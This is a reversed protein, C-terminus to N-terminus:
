DKKYKPFFVIILCVGMIAIAILYYDIFIYSNINKITEFNLEGDSIHCIINGDKYTTYINNYLQDSYNRINNIVEQSPHGYSNEGYSIVAYKPNTFELFASSTSTNSGHHGLKLVDVDLSSYSNILEVENSTTADGTLLVSHGMYELKIISSYMNSASYHEKNPGLFTVYPKLEETEANAFSFLINTKGSNSLKNLKSIIADYNEDDIVLDQNSYGNELSLSYINPRYFNKVEYNDLIYEFNGSHDLDSHTLVAYDFGDEGDKLFVNNIYYVIKSRKSALGSDVIMTKDNPLRVLIVDGEGTDLFHVQLSDEAINSLNPKLHFLYTLQTNFFISVLAMLFIIGCIIVVYKNLKFDRKKKNM